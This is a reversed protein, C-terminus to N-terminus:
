TSAARPLLPLGAPLLRDARALRRRRSHPGSGTHYDGHQAVDSGFRNYTGADNIAKYYTNDVYVLRIAFAAVLLGAM